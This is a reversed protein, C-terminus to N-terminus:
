KERKSINEDVFYGLEVMKMPDLIEDIIETSIGEKLLLEKIPIDSEYSKKVLQSVKEYGLIPVLSTALIPSQTVEELCRKKAAQIDDVCKKLGEVARKLLDFSDYLLDGILPVFANLELNGSSVALNIGVDNSIVKMSLQAAYELLVPNVKGPMISSGPQVAKLKVEGIGSKPGSSLWRLDNSIKVINTALTKLLGHVESFVDMNQTAEILNEARVLGLGVRRSLNRVVEFSYEKPANIGTGIATGGLNVFRIREEVKYLRWRDRSIAEAWAGFEQGLTMPVAEQLETRGIKVVDAFEREKEQLSEQLKVIKEVLERLLRIAGVKIATPYVDNTSQSRNVHDLPRVVYEGLKGGMLETARNAIVENFNMNIATGAGGSLPDVIFYEDFKGMKIEDCATKIANAMKEKLLGLERNTEACAWKVDAMADRLYPHVKKLPPFNQTDRVTFAGYYVNQPVYVCGLSDFEKRMEQM